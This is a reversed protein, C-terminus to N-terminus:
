ENNIKKKIDNIENKFIEEDNYRDAIKNVGHIVTSHDKGGLLTGIAQFPYETMEKCLYMAIQRPESIERTRRTSCMQDISINYHDAVIEIIMQPTIEKHKNPNIYTSLEEKAISINIERGELTNIAILKNLAGEMERINSKINNSIFDLVDDPFYVRKIEMKKRLIAMRTEYDPIGVDTLLGGEFRSLFREELIEMEKPPRDSSIIIHKNQSQLENFTHFFEEQTSQKGILFQIDDVMLVDVTRYKERLKLLLELNNANRISNIVENVFYESTVYLVKKEPNENIIFNGISHMLHTKGLGPGGYIYLPNFAEGPSEAVALSANYAFRNNSGVVFTDFTFKSNLNTDKYNLSTISQKVPKKKINDLSYNVADKALIFTINYEKGTLEAIKIKILNGYKRSIYSLGRENNEDQFIVILDDDEIAYPELPKLFSNFSINAIEFEEKISNLVNDWIKLLEDM